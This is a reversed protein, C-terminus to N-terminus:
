PMVGQIDVLLDRIDLPPTLHAHINLV